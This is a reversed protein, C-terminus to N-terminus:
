RLGDRKGGWCAVMLSLCSPVPRPQCSHPLRLKRPASCNAYFAYDVCCAFWIALLLEWRYASSGLSLIYIIILVQVSSKSFNIACFVSQSGTWNSSFWVDIETLLQWNFWLYLALLLLLLSRAVIEFFCSCRCAMAGHKRVDFGYTMSNGFDPFLTGPGFWTPSSISDALDPSCRLRHYAAPCPPPLNPARLHFRRLSLRWHVRLSPLLVVAHADSRRVLARRRQLVSSAVLPPHIPALWFEEGSSPRYGLVLRLGREELV